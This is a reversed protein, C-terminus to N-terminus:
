SRVVMALTHKRATLEDVAALRLDAREDSRRVAPVRASPSPGTKWTSSPKPFVQGHRLLMTSMRHRANMLDRRCMDHARVPGRAAEAEVL